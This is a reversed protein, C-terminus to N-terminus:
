KTRSKYYLEQYQDTVELWMKGQDFLKSEIGEYTQEDIKVSCPVIECSKFKGSLVVGEYNISAIRM